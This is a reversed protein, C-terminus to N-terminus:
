KQAGEPGPVAAEAQQDEDSRREDFVTSAGIAVVDPHKEMQGIYEERLDRFGWENVDIAFSFRSILTGRTTDHERDAAPAVLVDREARELLEKVVRTPVQDRYGPYVYRFM